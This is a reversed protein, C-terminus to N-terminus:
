MEDPMVSLDPRFMADNHEFNRMMALSKVMLEQGAEGLREDVEDSMMYYAGASTAPTILVVMPLDEGTVAQYATWGSEIGHEAYLAVWEKLLENFEDQTGSEPYLWDFHRAPKDAMSEMFGEPHYSQDAMEVYFNFATHDVLHDASMAEWKEWGIQNVMGMWQENLKMFDAMSEMPIAYSFGTEVGYHTYYVMEEPANAEILEHMAASAEEFAMVNAPAVQETFVAWWTPSSEEEQAALSAPMLMLVALPLLMWRKM